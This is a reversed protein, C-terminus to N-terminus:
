PPHSKVERHALCFGGVKHLGGQYDGAMSLILPYTRVKPSQNLFKLIEEEKASLNEGKAFLTILMDCAQKDTINPASRNIQQYAEKAINPSVHQRKAIKTCCDCVKQKNNGSLKQALLQETSM